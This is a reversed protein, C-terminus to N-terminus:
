VGVARPRPNRSTLARGRGMRAPNPPPGLNGIQNKRDSFLGGHPAWYEGHARWSPHPFWSFRNNSPILLIKPAGRCNKPPFLLRLKPPFYKKGATDHEEQDFLDIDGYPLEKTALQFRRRIPHGFGTPTQGLFAGAGQRGWGDPLPTISARGREDAGPGAPKFMKGSLRGTLNAPIVGGSPYILRGQISMSRRGEARGLIGPLGGGRTLSAVFGWSGYCGAGLGYGMGPRPQGRKGGIMPRACPM